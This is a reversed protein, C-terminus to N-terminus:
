AIFGLLFDFKEPLWSIGCEVQGFFLRKFLRSNDDKFSKHGTIEKPVWFLPGPLISFLEV